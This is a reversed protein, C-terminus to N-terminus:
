TQTRTAAHITLWGFLCVLGGMMAAYLPNRSVSFTFGVMSIVLIFVAIAYILKTNV